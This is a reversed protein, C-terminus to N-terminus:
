GIIMGVRGIKDRVPNKKIKRFLHNMSSINVTGDATISFWKKMDRVVSYLSPILADENLLKTDYRYWFSFANRTWEVRIVIANKEDSPVYIYIRIEGVNDGKKNYLPSLMMMIYGGPLSKPVPSIFAREIFRKDLSRRLVRMLRVVIDKRTLISTAESEM